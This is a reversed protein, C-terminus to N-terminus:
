AARQGSHRLASAQREQLQGASFTGPRPRFRRGKGISTTLASQGSGAWDGSLTGNAKQKAKQKAQLEAVREGTERQQTRLEDVVALCAQVTSCKEARDHNSQWQKAFQDRVEKRCADTTCNALKQDREIKQKPTLWNNDVAATAAATSTAANNSSVATAIGAVLSTVVNREGGQRCQDGECRRRVSKPLSTM